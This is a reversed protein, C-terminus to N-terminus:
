RPTLDKAELQFWYVAGSEIEERVSDDIAYGSVVATAGVGTARYLIEANRVARQTDRGNVTYSVEVVIYHKVGDVGEAEIVLDAARFSRLADRDMDQVAPSSAIQYLEEAELLQSTRYGLEVAVAKYRRDTASVAGLGKLTGVDDTLRDVRSTLRAQGGELAGVRNILETQGQELNSLRKDTKEAFEGFDSKLERVDNTLGDVRNTLGDVRSPLRILEETFILNRIRDLWAPQEEIIRVLDEITDIKPM